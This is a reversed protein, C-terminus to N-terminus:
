TASHTKSENGPPGLKSNHRACTEIDDIYNAIFIFNDSYASWWWKFVPKSQLEELARQKRANTASRDGRHVLPWLEQSCIWLEPNSERLWWIEQSTTPRSRPGSLRTLVSSSSSPLL